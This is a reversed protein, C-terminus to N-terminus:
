EGTMVRLMTNNNLCCCKFVIHDWKSWWPTDFVYGHGIVYMNM